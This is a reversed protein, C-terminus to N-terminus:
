NTLSMYSMFGKHFYLPFPTAGFANILCGSFGPTTTRMDPTWGSVERASFVNRHAAWMWLPQNRFSLEAPQVSLFISCPLRRLARQRQDKAKRIQQWQSKSDKYTKRTAEAGPMNVPISFSSIPYNKLSM